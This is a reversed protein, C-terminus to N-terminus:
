ANGRERSGSKHELVGEAVVNCLMKIDKEELLQM